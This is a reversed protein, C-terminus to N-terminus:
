LPCGVNAVDPPTGQRVPTVHVYARIDDINADAEGLIGCGSLVAMLMSVALLALPTRM